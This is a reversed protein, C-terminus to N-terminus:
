EAAKEAKFLLDLVEARYNKEGATITFKLASDDLDQRAEKLRGLGVRAHARAICLMASPFKAIGDTATQEAEAFRGTRACARARYEYMPPWGPDYQSSKLSAQVAGEWDELNSRTVLLMSWARGHKDNLLIATELSQIADHLHEKRSEAAWAHQLAWGRETWTDARLPALELAADLVELAERWKGQDRLGMAEQTKRTAAASDALRQEMDRVIKKADDV